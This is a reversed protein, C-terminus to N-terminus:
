QSIHLDEFLHTNRKFSDVLSLLQAYEVLPLSSHSSPFRLPLKFKSDFHDMIQTHQFGIKEFNEDNKKRRREAM